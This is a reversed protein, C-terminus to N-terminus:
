KEEPDEKTEQKDVIKASKSIDICDDIYWGDENM